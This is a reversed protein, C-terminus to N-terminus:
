ISFKGKHVRRAIFISCDGSLITRKIQEIKM